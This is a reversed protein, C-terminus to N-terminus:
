YLKCLSIAADIAAQNVDPIHQLAYRVVFDINSLEPMVAALTGMARVDGVPLSALDALKFYHQYVAGSERAPPPYHALVFSRIPALVRIRQDPTRTALASQLLAGVAPPANTLRWHPIDPEVAGHPLLSLIGLMTLAAPVARMRSSQVSVSISIDLSSLRTRGKRPRANRDSGRGLAAASESAVRVLLLGIADDDDSGDAIAFFTQRAAVDALPALPPLFLKSWSVGQPREAGRITVILSVNPMDALFQLVREADPRQEATEWASEFNDLVIVAPEGGIADCLNHRLVKPDHSVLGFAEGIVSLCSAHGEAGDCPVFFRHAGFRAAVAPHHLASVALSTKGMGPGGLIAVRGASVDESLSNLAKEHKTVLADIQAALAAAM